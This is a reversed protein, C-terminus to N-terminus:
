NDTNKKGTTDANAQEKWYKVPVVLKIEGGLTREFGHSLADVSTITYRAKESSYVIMDVKKFDVDALNISWSGDGIRLRDKEKEAKYYTGDRVIGHSM